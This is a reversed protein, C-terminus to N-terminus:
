VLNLLNTQEQRNDTLGAAKVILDRAKFILSWVEKKERGEIEEEEEEDDEEEGEEEESNDEKDQKAQLLIRKSPLPIEPVLQRRAGNTRPRQLTEILRKNGIIKKPTTPGERYIEM